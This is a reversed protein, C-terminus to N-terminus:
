AVVSRIEPSVGAVRPKRLVDADAGIGRPSISEIM